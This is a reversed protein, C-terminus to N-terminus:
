ADARAGAGTSRAARATRSRPEDNKRRSSHPRAKPQAKQLAHVTPDAVTLPVSATWVGAETWARVRYRGPALLLPINEGPDVLLRDAPVADDPENAYRAEYIMREDANKLARPIDAFRQGRALRWTPREREFALPPHAIYIDRDTPLASGDSNSVCVGTRDGVRQTQDITLPDIGTIEKLQLALWRLDHGDVREPTERSHGHGVHVLVRTDPQDRLTQNILSSTLATTRANAEDTFHRGPPFAGADSIATTAYGLAQLRRELAGFAPEDRFLPAAITDSAFTTFGLAKLRIAVDEVLARDRPSAHDENVIVVRADEAREAILAAAEGDALTCPAGAIQQIRDERGLAALGFSADRTAPTGAAPAMDAGVPASADQALASAGLLAAALLLARRIM